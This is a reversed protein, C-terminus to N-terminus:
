NRPLPRGTSALPAVKSADVDCITVELGQRVLHAATACGIPGAGIVCARRLTPPTFSTTDSRAM